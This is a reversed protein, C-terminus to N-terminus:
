SPKQKTVLSFIRSTNASEQRIRLSKVLLSMDIVADDAFLSLATKVDFENAANIFQQIITEISVEKMAKDKPVNM